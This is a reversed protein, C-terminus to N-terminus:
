KGWMESLRRVMRLGFEDVNASYSAYDSELAFKSLFHPSNTQACILQYHEIGNALSVKGIKFAMGTDRKYVISGKKLKNEHPVCKREKTLHSFNQESQNIIKLDNAMLKLGEIRQGRRKM